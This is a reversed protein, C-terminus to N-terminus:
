LTHSNVMSQINGHLATRHLARATCHMTLTVVSWYFIVFSKRFNSSSSLSLLSQFPIKKHFVEILKLFPSCMYSCLTLCLSISLCVSVLKSSFIVALICNYATITDNRKILVRWEESVHVDSTLPIPIPLTTTSSHSLSCSACPVAPRLSPFLPWERAPLKLLTRVSCGVVCTIIIM